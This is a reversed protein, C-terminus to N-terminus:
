FFNAAHIPFLVCMLLLVATIVRGLPLRYFFPFACVCVTAAAYLLYAGWGTIRAFAMCFNVAFAAGGVCLCGALTKLQPMIIETRSSVTLDSDRSPALLLVLAAAFLFSQKASLYPVAERAEAVDPFTLPIMGVISLVCAVPVAVRAVRWWVPM